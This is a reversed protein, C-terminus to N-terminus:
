ERSRRHCPASSVHSTFCCCLLLVVAVMMGIVATCKAMSAAMGGGSMWEGARTAGEDDNLGGGRKGKRFEGVSWM